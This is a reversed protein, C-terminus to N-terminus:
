SGQIYATRTGTKVRYDSNDDSYVGDEGEFSLLDQKGWPSDSCSVVLEHM